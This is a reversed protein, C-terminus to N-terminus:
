NCLTRIYKKLKEALEPRRLAADLQAKVYFFHNGMDYRLGPVRMAFLREEKALKDM